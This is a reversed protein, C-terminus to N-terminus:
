DLLSEVADIAEAPANEGSLAMPEQEAGFTDPEGAAPEEPNAQLLRLQSTSEDYEYVFQVVSELEFNPYDYPTWSLVYLSVPDLEAKNFKWLSPPTVGGATGGPIAVVVREGVSLGSNGPEVVEFEAPTYTWEESSETGDVLVNHSLDVIKVVATLDGVVFEDSTPYDYFYHAEPPATEDESPDWEWAPASSSCSSLSLGVLLAGAVLQYSRPSSTVWRM